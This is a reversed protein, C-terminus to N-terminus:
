ATSRRSGGRGMGPVLRDTSGSRGRVRYLGQAYPSWCFSLTVLGGLLRALRKYASYRDCVIVTHRRLGDFLRQEAEASRSPDIHFYVADNGVSTWLWARSSRGTERLRRGRALLDRRCPAAGGREPARPDGRGGARVAGRLPARQRGPHRALDSAGPRVAVRCRPAPPALLCLARVPLAVLRQNRLAHQRVAAAGAAGLRDLPSSACDCTRRWRPRRILRQHAKVEIEVVSSEEAGNAVYPSGAGPVPARKPRRTVSKRANKSGPGHPAAMLRHAPSSAAGVRLAHRRSSSARAATCRRPCCRGVRAFSPLSPLSPKCHRSVVRRHRRPRACSPLRGPAVPCSGPAPVPDHEGQEVRYRSGFPTEGSADGRGAPVTRADRCPASAADGRRGREAPAAIEQLAIEVWGCRM